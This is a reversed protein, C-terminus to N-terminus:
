NDMASMSDCDLRYIEGFGRIPLLSVRNDGFTNHPVVFYHGTSQQDSFAAATQSFTSIVLETFAL